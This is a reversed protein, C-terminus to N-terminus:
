FDQRRVHSAIGFAQGTELAFSAGDGREIM